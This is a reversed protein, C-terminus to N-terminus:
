AEEPSKERKKSWPKYIDKKIRQHYIEEDRNKVTFEFFKPSAEKIEMVEYSIGTNYVIREGVQFDSALKAEHWGCNQLWICMKGDVIQNEYNNWRM